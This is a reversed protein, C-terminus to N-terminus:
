KQNSLKEWEECEKVHPCITCDNEYKGCEATLIKDLKKIRREIRENM